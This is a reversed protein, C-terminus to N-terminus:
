HLSDLIRTVAEHQSAPLTVLLQKIGQYPPEALLIGTPVMGRVPACTYTLAHSSIPQWSVAPCLSLRALSSLIPQGNRNYVSSEGGDLRYEITQPMGPYPAHVPGASFLADSASGGWNTLPFAEQWSSPVLFGYPGPVLRLGDVVVTSGAPGAHSSSPPASSAHAPSSAHPPSDPTPAVSTPSSAHTPRPPPSHPTPAASTAPPAHRHESAVHAVTVTGVAVAAVCAAAILPTVWPAWRRPKTVRRPAFPPAARRPGLEADVTANVLERIRTEIDNM